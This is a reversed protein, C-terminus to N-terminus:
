SLFGNNKLRILLGIQSDVAVILMSLVVNTDTDVRHNNMLEEVSNGGTNGIFERYKEMWDPMKWEPSETKKM